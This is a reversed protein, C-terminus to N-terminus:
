RQKCEPHPEETFYHVKPPVYGKRSQLFAGRVVARYTITVRELTQIEDEVKFFGVNLINKSLSRNKHPLLILEKDNVKITFVVDRLYDGKIKDAKVGVKITNTEADCIKVNWSVEEHAFSMNSMLLVAACILYKIKKM